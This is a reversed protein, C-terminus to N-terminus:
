RGWLGLMFCMILTGAFGGIFAGAAISIIESWDM